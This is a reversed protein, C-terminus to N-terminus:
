GRRSRRGRRGRLPAVGGAARARLSREAYWPRTRVHIPPLTGHVLVADGPRMQRVVHAPALQVETGAQTVSGRRSGLGTDTSRQLTAAQEQGLLRAVTDLGGLDSMSAYFLKSLHNTLISEAQERYTADIQARSQWVTVLLIGLGAVTSALEPLWRLPTNGAEDVVVLLQPDLPRGTAAVRAFAQKLVDNLLGGFAPALRRQDELPACLYATNAGALLWDLDIDCTQASRAVGPDAWPWVVTQATAYVSSRTRDELQWVALLAKTAAEAHPVVEDDESRLMAELLVRVVGPTEETPRDQTLVWEVVDGMAMGPTAAAVWLLGSLLIEAQALWFDDGGERGTRPAADVLVRAARQAGFTTRADRLPSWGATAAGTCGTPDYVRVEGVSSRWRRTAELLDNKVSSLVAPGDWELVGSIVATTKGCRSPGILAVAGRDARRSSRRGRGAAAGSRSETALLHGGPVSRGLIFRGPEARRVVLATIQRRSTAFRAQTDVGLRRRRELGWRRRPWKVAAWSVAVVGVAAVAVTAAWYAGPGPLDSRWPQPWAARPDGLTTPLVRAALVVDGIPPRVLGGGTAAIALVAGAWVVLVVAGFMGAALLVLGGFVDSDDPAVDFGLRRRGGSRVGALPAGRRAVLRAFRPRRVVGSAAATTTRAAASWTATRVPSRLV